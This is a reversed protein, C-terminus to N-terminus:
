AKRYKLLTLKGKKLTPQLKEGKKLTVFDLLSEDKDIEDLKDIDFELIRVEGEYKVVSM